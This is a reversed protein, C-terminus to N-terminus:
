IFSPNEKGTMVEILFDWQGKELVKQIPVKEENGSICKQDTKRVGLRSL